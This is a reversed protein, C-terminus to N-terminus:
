TRLRDSASLGGFSAGARERGYLFGTCDSSSVEHWCYRRIGVQALVQGGYQIIDDSLLIDHNYAALPSALLPYMAPVGSINREKRGGFQGTKDLCGM